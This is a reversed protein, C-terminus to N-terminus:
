YYFPVTVLCGGNYPGVSMIHFRGRTGNAGQFKFTVTGIQKAAEEGTLTASGAPVLESWAVNEVRGTTDAPLVKSVGSSLELIMPDDSYYSVCLGGWSSADVVFPKGNDDEGGINFNLSVYPDKDLSRKSLQYTGCIGSCAGIIPDLSEIFGPGTTIPWNTISAGGEKKDNGIIWYGSTENGEDCHTDMQFLGMDGFWTDMIGCPSGPTHPKQTWALSGNWGRECFYEISTHVKGFTTAGEVCEIGYTDIQSQLAAEWNPKSYKTCKYYRDEHLKIEGLREDSCEGLAQTVNMFFYPGLDASSFSSSSANVLASSSSVTAEASSSPIQADSSLAAQESSSTPVQNGPSAPDDSSCGALMSGALAAVFATTLFRNTRM